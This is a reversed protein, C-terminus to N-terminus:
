DKLRITAKQSRKNHAKDTAIVTIKAKLRKGRKLARKVAKLRKKQLKLRLKASVNARVSRSAKKFRYLKSAGAVSVSGRATLTGAESMRAKVFLKDVDQVPAFSLTEFPRVRDRGSGGSTDPLTGGGSGGGSCTVAASNAARYSSSATPASAATTGATVQFTMIDSFEIQPCTFGNCRKDHGAVHLYYTGPQFSFPDAFTTQDPALTGFSEVHRFYGDLSVESSQSAQMFQSSVGAPLTWQSTPHSSGSALTVSVLVPPCALAVAPWFTLALLFLAM